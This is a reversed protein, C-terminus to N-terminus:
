AAQVQWWPAFFRLCASQCVPVHIGIVTNQRSVQSKEFRVTSYLDTMKSVRGSFTDLLLGERSVPKSVASRPTGMITESGVM